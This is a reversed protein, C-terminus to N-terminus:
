DDSKVMRNSVASNVRVILARRHSLSVPLVLHRGISVLTERTIGIIQELNLNNWGHGLGLFGLLTQSSDLGLELQYVDHGATNQEGMLDLKRVPSPLLLFHGTGTTTGKGVTNPIDLVVLMGGHSCVGFSDVVTVRSEEALEPLQLLNHPGGVSAQNFRVSPVRARGRPGSEEATDVEPALVVALNVQKSVRQDPPRGGQGNTDVENELSDGNNAPLAATTVVVVNGELAKVILNTGADQSPEEVVEWEVEHSALEEQVVIERGQVEGNHNEALLKVEDSVTDLAQSKSGPGHDSLSQHCCEETETDQNEGDVGWEYISVRPSPVCAVLHLEESGPIEVAVGEVGVYTNRFPLRGPSTVSDVHGHVSM